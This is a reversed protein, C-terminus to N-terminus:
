ALVGIRFFVATAGFDGCPRQELGLGHTLEKHFNEAQGRPNHWGRGAHATHEEASGNSAM